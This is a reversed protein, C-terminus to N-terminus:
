RDSKREDHKADDDDDDDAEDGADGDSSLSVHGHNSSGHLM